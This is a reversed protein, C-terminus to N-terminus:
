AHRHAQAAPLGRQRFREDLRVDGDQFLVGFTKRLEYREKKSIKWIDKGHILVEGQDPELLGVLHKILVSKGTGSPGLITTIADDHFNLDLGTLIEFPGFAKHVDRVEMSHTGNGVNMEEKAAPSVDVSM